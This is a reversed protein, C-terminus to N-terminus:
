LAPCDGVSESWHLPDTIWAAIEFYREIIEGVEQARLQADDYSANMQFIKDDILGCNWLMGVDSRSQLQVRLLQPDHPRAQGGQERMGPLWNFIQRRMVDVLHTGEEGLRKQVELLPAHAHETLLEQDENRQMLHLCTESPDVKILNLVAEFTPGNIGMANPLLAAIWPEQFPWVRGAQYNTFVAHETRTYHTNLLAM